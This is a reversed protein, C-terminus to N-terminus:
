YSFPYVTTSYRAMTFIYSNCSCADLHIFTTFRFTISFNRYLKSVLVFPIIIWSHLYTTFLWSFGLFSLCLCYETTYYGIPPLVVSYVFHYPPSSYLLPQQTPLWCLLMFSYVRIVTRALFSLFKFKYVPILFLSCHFTKFTDFSQSQCTHFCSFIFLAEM